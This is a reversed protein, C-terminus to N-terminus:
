VLTKALKLVLGRGWGDHAFDKVSPIKDVDFWRAETVGRGKVISSTAPVALYDFVLHWSGNMGIFSEIEVPKLAVKEIGIHEQLIRQAGVEPHEVHQLGDNPNFWGEQGDHWYSYKVLLVKGDHLVVVQSVLTHDKCEM